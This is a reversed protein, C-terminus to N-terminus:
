LKGSQRAKIKDEVGTEGMHPAAGAPVKTAEAKSNVQPKTACGMGCINPLLLVATAFFAIRTNSGNRSM